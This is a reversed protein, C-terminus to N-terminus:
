FRVLIFPVKGSFWHANKIIDRETTRLIFFIESLTTSFSSVCTKLEIVKKEFANGHTIYHSIIQLATRVVSSMHRMLMVLQIDLAVYVYM